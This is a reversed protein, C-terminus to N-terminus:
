EIKIGYVHTDLETGPLMLYRLKGGCSLTKTGNETHYKGNL